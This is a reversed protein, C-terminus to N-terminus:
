GHGVYFYSLDQSACYSADNFRYLEDSHHRCLILNFLILDKMISAADRRLTYRTRPVWRPTMAGLCCLEKRLFTAATALGLNSGWVEWDSFSRTVERGVPRVWLSAYGVRCKFQLINSPSIIRCGYGSANSIFVNWTPFFDRECFTFFRKWTRIPWKKTWVRSASYFFPRRSRILSSAEKKYPTCQIEIPSASERNPFM